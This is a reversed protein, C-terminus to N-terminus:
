SHLNQKHHGQLDGTDRVRDVQLGNQTKGTSTFWEPNGCCDLISGFGAREKSAFDLSVSIDFDPKETTTESTITIANKFYGKVM